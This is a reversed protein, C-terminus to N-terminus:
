GEKGPRNGADRNLARLGHNAALLTDIAEFYGGRGPLVTPAQIPPSAATLRHEPFSIGVLRNESESEDILRAGM